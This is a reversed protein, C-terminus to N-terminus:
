LIRPILSSASICSAIVVTITARVTRTTKTKPKTKIEPLAVAVSTSLETYSKDHEPTFELSMNGAKKEQNQVAWSARHKAVM